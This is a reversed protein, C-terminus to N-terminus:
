RDTWAFLWSRWPESTNMISGESTVGAGVAACTTDNAGIIIPVGKRLGLADAAARDLEGVVSCSMVVEPLKEREIGLLELLSEDWNSYGVTDYVGTFSANSPDILFRGTLRKMFFTVAHGFCVGKMKFIEPENDRLWLTSTSSIRGPVPLNGTIRLIEEEGVKDLIWRAQRYSRRDLHLIIPYLPKGDADMPLLSPCLTSFTIATVGSRKKLNRCAQALVDWFVEADIEM